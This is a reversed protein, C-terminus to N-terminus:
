DTGPRRADEHEAKTSADDKHSSPTTLALEEPTPEHRERAEPPLLEVVADMIRATDDDPDVYGLEVPDGLRVLVHPANTINLLRPLRESRPWVKETGWLGLPIVPVRAMEALRAAGWRGKLVPDFFAEGRPITGQPLIVVIEGAELAAAAEKLPEDSGTGRDVRIGGMARAVDGVIPADFVEKKGLFRVPRGRKAVAYGIALPDFYSRHNGCIIAPGEAPIHEVDQIDLRAYPVLEPRAFPFILQQPEIGLFKPVGPPVDLYQVPWRRALAFLRLRPDPNIVVPHGVASLLPTDYWSDSYAWSSSLDVDHDDAWERVARLKGKGWVFEGDFAGTYKGKDVGYRSAIVGDLGLLEAFPEVMDVPTTTAVAVLRGAAHHEEILVRAYPQVLPVLTKAALEGAERARGRDWGKALRAGQRTLMMAPRNEGVLNFARFLLDEGPLTRDALLGVARLAASIAPGSAGALLTRDLDFIAAERAM